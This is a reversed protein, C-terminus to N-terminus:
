YGTFASQGLFFVEKNANYGRWQEGRFLKCRSIRINHCAKIPFSDIICEMQACVYKFVRGVELFMWLLLPAVKHSKTCNISSSQSGKFFLASVIATVMVENDSVKREGPESHCIGKLVDDVLCYIRIVKNLLM